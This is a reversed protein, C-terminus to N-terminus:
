IKTVALDCLFVLIVYFYKKLFVQIPGLIFVHLWFKLFQQDM